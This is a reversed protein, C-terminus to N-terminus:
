EAIPNLLLPHPASNISSFTNNLSSAHILKSYNQESFNPSDTTRSTPIVYQSINQVLPIDGMYLQLIRTPLTQM